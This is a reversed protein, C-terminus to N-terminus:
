HIKEADDCTLHISKSIQSTPLNQAAGFLRGASTQRHQTTPGPSAILPRRLCSGSQRHASGSGIPSRTSEHCSPEKRGRVVNGYVHEANPRRATIPLIASWAAYLPIGVLASSISKPTITPRECALQLIACNTCIGTLRISNGSPTLRAIRSARMAM